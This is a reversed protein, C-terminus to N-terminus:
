LRTAPRRCRRWGYDAFVGGCLGGVSLLPPARARLIAREGRRRRYLRHSSHRVAM